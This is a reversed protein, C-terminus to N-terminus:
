CAIVEQLYLFAVSHTLSQCQNDNALERSDLFVADKLCLISVKHLDIKKNMRDATLLNM